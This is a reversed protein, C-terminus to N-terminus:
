DILQVGLGTPERYSSLRTDETLKLGECKEVRRLEEVILAVKEPNVLHGLICSPGESPHLDFLQKLRIRVRAKPSPGSVEVLKPEGGLNRSNLEQGLGEPQKAAGDVAGITAYATPRYDNM